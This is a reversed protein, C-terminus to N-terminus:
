SHTKPMNRRLYAERFVANMSDKLSESVVIHSTDSVELRELRTHMDGLQAVMTVREEPSLEHKTHEFNYLCRRFYEQLPEEWQVAPPPYGKKERAITYASLGETRATVYETSALKCIEEPSTPTTNSNDQTNSMNITSTPTTNSNNQTNSM